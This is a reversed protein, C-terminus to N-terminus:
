VLTDTKGVPASCLLGGFGFSGPGHSKLRGKGYFAVAVDYEIVM